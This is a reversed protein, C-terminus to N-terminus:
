LWMEREGGDVVPTTRFSFDIHAYSQFCEFYEISTYPAQPLIITMKM